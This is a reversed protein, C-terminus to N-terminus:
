PTSGAVAASLVGFLADRLERYAPTQPHVWDFHGVGPLERVAASPLARTQDAAVIEDALGRLLTVPVPQPLRAPSAAAYRDPVDEPTGGMFRPTVTECSNTGRAYAELDTIAAIGVAGVIRLPPRFLSADRAALWLALHGGASHGALITRQLSLRPHEIQTLYDVARVLDAATGPWGGGDEGVRRYEPVYVAYGDQALRAALPYIHAASYEELWCGGHILVVVPYADQQGPPLWLGATNSDATGYRLVETAAPASLALVDSFSVPMEASRAPMVTQLLLIAALLTTSVSYCDRTM